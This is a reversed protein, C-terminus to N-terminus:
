PCFVWILRAVCPLFMSKVLAGKVLGTFVPVARGPVHEGPSRKKLVSAADPCFKYPQVATFVQTGSDVLAGAPSPSGPEFPITTRVPTLVVEATVAGTPAMTPVLSVCVSVFLLMLADSILAPVKDAARSGAKEPSIDVEAPELAVV